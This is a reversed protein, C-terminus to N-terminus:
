GTVAPLGARLAIAQKKGIDIVVDPPTPDGTASQFEMRTVSPGETFLLVTVDKSGDPATGAIVTGNSGVPAPEPTGGAVTANIAHLTTDLAAKAADADPLVNITVGVARTDDQNVFLASVGQGGRRNPVTSRTVFTDTASSIDAPQILLRSYDVVASSNEKPASTPASSPASSVSTPLGPPSTAAPTDTPACASLGLTLAAAALTTGITLSSSRVHRM